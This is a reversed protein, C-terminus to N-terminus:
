TRAFLGRQPLADALLDAIADLLTPEGGLGRGGFRLHRRVGLRHCGLPAFHDDTM